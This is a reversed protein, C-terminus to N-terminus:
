VKKKMNKIYDVVMDQAQDTRALQCEQVYLAELLTAEGNKLRKHLKVYKKNSQLETRREHKTLEVSEMEITKRYDLLRQEANDTSLQNSKPFVGIGGNVFSLGSVQAKLFKKITTENRNIIDVAKLFHQFDASSPSVVRKTKLKYHKKRLSAYRKSLQIAKIIKEKAVVTKKKIKKKKVKKDVSIKFDTDYSLDGLFDKLVGRAVKIFPSGNYNVVLYKKQIDIKLPKILM